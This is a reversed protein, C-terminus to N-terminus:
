LQAEPEAADLELTEAEDSLSRAGQSLPHLKIFSLVRKRRNEIISVPTRLTMGIEQAINGLTIVAGRMLIGRVNVMPNAQSEIYIRYSELQSKLEATEKALGEYELSLKKFTEKEVKNLRSIREINYLYPSIMRHIRRMKRTKRNLDRGRRNLLRETFPCRGAIVSTKISRRSGLNMAEVGKFAICEGGELRASSAIVAGGCKVVCSNMENLVEINGKVEVFSATLSNAKLNGGARIAGIYNGSMGGMVINTEAEILCEGAMGRIMVSRARVNFSDNVNGTIEVDGIFDISGTRKGVDGTLQFKDSVSIVNRDFLVRGSIVAFYARQEEDWRANQGIQPLEDMLVGDKAPIPIGFVNMGPVGLTPPMIRGIEDGALINEILPLSEGIIRNADMVEFKHRDSNPRVKFEVHEDLGHIPATAKALHTGHQEIGSCVISCFLKITTHDLGHVVNVSNLLEAVTEPSILSGQAKPTAYGRVESGAPDAEIRLSCNPLEKELLARFRFRHDASDPM